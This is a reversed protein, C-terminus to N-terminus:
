LSNKKSDQWLFKNKTYFFGCGIGADSAIFDKIQEFVSVQQSNLEM